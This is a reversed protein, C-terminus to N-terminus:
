KLEARGFSVDFDVCWIDVYKFKALDTKSPINYTYDGDIGKLEGLDVFETAKADISLYVLLRPGSDTKFNLLNLVTQEENVVAKGTTVHAGSVFDGKLEDGEEMELTEQGMEQMVEENAGSVFSGDDESSGSCSLVLSFLFAALFTSRM